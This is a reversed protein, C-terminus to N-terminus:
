YMLFQKCNDQNQCFVRKRAPYFCSSSWQVVANFLAFVLLRARLADVLEPAADLSVAVLESWPSNTVHVAEFGDLGGRRLLRYRAFAPRLPCRAHHLRLDHRFNLRLRRGFLQGSRFNRFCRFRVVDGPHEDLAQNGVTPIWRWVTLEASRAPEDVASPQLVLLLPLGLRDDKRGIHGETELGDGLLGPSDGLRPIDGLGLVSDPFPGLCSVFEAAVLSIYGSKKNVNVCSGVAIPSLVIFFHGPLKVISPAQRISRLEESLLFVNFIPGHIIQPDDAAPGNQSGCLSRASM